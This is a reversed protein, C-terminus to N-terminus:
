TSHRSDKQYPPLLVPGSDQFTHSAQICLFAKYIVAHVNKILCGAIQHIDGADAMYPDVVCRKNTKSICVILQKILILLRLNYSIM